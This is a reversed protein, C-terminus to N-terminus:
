NMEPARIDRVVALWDSFADIGYQNKALNCALHTVRMNAHSIRMEPWTAEPM